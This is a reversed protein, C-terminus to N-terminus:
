GQADERHPIMLIQNEDKGVGYRYPEYGYGFRGAREVAKTLVVGVIHGGADELRTMAAKIAPTRTRGAEVVLLPGECSGALSPSDALGLVPPGDVIVIDFSQAAEGLIARFRGSALLDAPSPPVPGCPLLWLNEYQTMVVHERVSADTTLLPTLGQKNNAAKFTPKRM